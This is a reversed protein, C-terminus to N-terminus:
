DNTKEQQIDPNTLFLKSCRGCKKTDVAEWVESKIRAIQQCYPCKYVYHKIIEIFEGQEYSM